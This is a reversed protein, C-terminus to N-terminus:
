AAFPELQKSAPKVWRSLDTRDAILTPGPSPPGQRPAINVDVPFHDRFKLAWALTPDIDLPLM